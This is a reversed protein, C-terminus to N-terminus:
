SLRLWSKKYPEYPIYFLVKVSKSVFVNEFTWKLFLSPLVTVALYLINNLNEPLEITTFLNLCHNHPFTQAM